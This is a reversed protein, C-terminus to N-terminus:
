AAPLFEVVLNDLDAEALTTDTPTRVGLAFSDIIHGQVTPVNVECVSDTIAPSTDVVFVNVVQNYESTPTTSEMWLVKYINNVTSGQGITIRIKATNKPLIYPYVDAGSNGYFHLVGNSCAIGGGRALASWSPLGNGGSESSNAYFYGGVRKLVNTDMFARSTVVCTASQSGCTATITATGVGITTVVGNTVTAVDIDSSAWSVEDTTNVPTLTPVITTAGGISSIEATQKDLSIGTCPITNFTVVDFSNASYDAGKIVITKAM